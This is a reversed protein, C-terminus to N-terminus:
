QFRSRNHSTRWYEKNDPTKIRLRYDSGPALNLANGYFGASMANLPTSNGNKDEVRIMAGSVPKFVTNANVTVTMSLSIMTSDPGVNLVGEVVLLSRDTDKLAAEYPDKCGAVVVIIFLIIFLNKM